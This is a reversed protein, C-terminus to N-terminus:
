SAGCARRSAGGFWDRFHLLYPGDHPWWLATMWLAMPYVRDRQGMRAGEIFFVFMALISLGGIAVVAVGNHSIADLTTQPDYTNM